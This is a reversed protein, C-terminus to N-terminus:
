ASQSQALSPKAAPRAAHLFAALGLAEGTLFLPWNFPNPWGGNVTNPFDRM